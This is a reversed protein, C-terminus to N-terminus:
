LYGLEMCKLNIKGMELVIPLLEDIGFDKAGISFLAKYFFKNIDENRHGLLYSQYTSIALSRIGLLILSKLSRIDEADTQLEKMDYDDTRGCSNWCVFCDPVLRRKENEVRQLLASITDNNCNMNLFTSSLCEMVLQDTDLTVLEENGETARALGILAGILKNQLKEM